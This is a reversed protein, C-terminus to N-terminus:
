SSKHERAYMTVQSDQEFMNDTSKFIKNDSVFTGTIKLCFILM